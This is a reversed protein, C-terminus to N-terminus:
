LILKLAISSQQIYKPFSMFRENPSLPIRNDNSFPLEYDVGSLCLDIPHLWPQTVLHIIFISGLTKLFTGIVYLIIELFDIIEPLNCSRQYNDQPTGSNGIRTSLSLIIMSIYFGAVSTKDSSQPFFLTSLRIRTLSNNVWKQCFPM